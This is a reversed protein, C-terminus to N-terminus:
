VRSKERKEKRKRKGEEGGEERERYKEFELSPLVYPLLIDAHGFKGCRLCFLM